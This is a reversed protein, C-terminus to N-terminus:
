ASTLRGMSPVWGLGACTPCQLNAIVYGTGSCRTCDPTDAPRSPLLELLRPYRKAGLKIAGLRELEGAKQWEYRDPDKLRDVPIYFWVSGDARLFAEHGITGYLSMGEATKLWEASEPRHLVEQVRCARVFESVWDPTQRM